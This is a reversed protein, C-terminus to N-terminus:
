STFRIEAQHCEHHLFCVTGAPEIEAAVPGIRVIPGRRNTLTSSAIRGIVVGLDIRGTRDILESATQTAKRVETEGTMAIEVDVESM